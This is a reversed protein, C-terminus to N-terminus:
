SQPGASPQGKKRVCGAGTTGRPGGVTAQAEQKWRWSGGLAKGGEQPAQGPERLGPPHLAETGLVAERQAACGPTWMCAAGAQIGAGGNMLEGKMGVSLICLLLPLPSVAPLVELSNPSSPEPIPHWLHFPEKFSSYPM